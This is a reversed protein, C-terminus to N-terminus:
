CRRTRVDAQEVPRLLIPRPVQLQLRRKLLAASSYKLLALPSALPCDPSGSWFLLLEAAKAALSHWGIRAGLMGCCAYGADCFRRKMGRKGHAIAPGASRWACPAKQRPWGHHATAGHPPQGCLGAGAASSPPHPVDELEIKASLRAGAREAHPLRFKSRVVTAATAPFGAGRPSPVGPRITSAAIAADYRRQCPVRMAGSVSRRGFCRTGSRPRGKTSGDEPPAAPTVVPHEDDAREALM